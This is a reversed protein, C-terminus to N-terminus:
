EDSEDLNAQTSARLNHLKKFRSVKSMPALLYLYNLNTKPHKFRRDKEKIEDMLVNIDYVSSRMFMVQNQYEFYFWNGDELEMYLYMRNGRRRKRIEIKGKVIKNHTVKSISGLELDGSSYYAKNKKNWILKVQNFFLTQQLTDPLFEYASKEKIETMIKTAEDKPLLLPFTKLFHENNLNSPNQVSKAFHKNMMKLLDKSFYFDFGLCTNLTLRDKESDFNITGAASTRIHGMQVGLNILGEGNLNCNNMNYSILNGAKEPRKLKLSDGIQYLNKNHNYTLFGKIKLLPNDTYFKRTSLFAPYIHISDNTLYFSNFIKVNEKDRGITDIPIMINKPNIPANFTLWRNEINNCENHIQTEGDFRLHKDRATLHTQGRFDFDPSLTFAMADPLAGTAITQGTTDVSIEKFYIEQEEDLDDKYTYFGSGSYEKRGKVEVLADSIEHFHYLTDAIIKCNSLPALYGDKQITLDGNLPFIDADAVKLKEIFKAAINYGSTDYIAYPTIFSLSDQDFHTSIFTNYSKKPLTNIKGTEWLTNLHSLEETGFEIQDNTMNWKFSNLQCIYNNSPFSSYNDEITSKFDTRQNLLDITADCRDAKFTYGTTNKSLLKFQSNDAVIQNESYHFKSSTFSGNAYHMKGSGAMQDNTINIIGALTAHGEYMNFPSHSGRSQIRFKDKNSDWQVWINKGSIDPHAYPTEQAMLTYSEANGRARNPLLTFHNSVIKTNKETFTGKSWLGSNDLFLSDTLLAKDYVTTGDKEIAHAFGISKDKNIILTERFDPIIGGSKFEGEFQIDQDSLKNINEIKFPDVKIYFESKKYVGNQIFPKEYYVYSSDYSNFKPYQELYENGSKNSPHDIQLNASTNKVINELFNTNRKAFEGKDDNPIFSKLSDIIGMNVEFKDYSFNHNKGYLNLPGAKILGSFQFDRNQKVLLKGGQPVFTVNQSNSVSVQGVGNIQLNFNKLNLTADDDSKQTNSTFRIVDYDQKGMAAAIYNNSREEITVEDNSANYNVFGQFSLRIIQQRIQSIPKKIYSSYEEITFTNSYIYKAFKNLLVLPHINDMGQLKQYHNKTFYNSSEFKALRHAAGKMKRFHILSDGMKWHLIGFDMQMNHYNNFYPSRSMGAGDRTLILEKKKTLIKLHLNPHYIKFTDLYLTVETDKGIIKDNSFSFHESTAEIFLSDDKILEIKAPHEANGKGIFKIGKIAVGGKYRINKYLSDIVIDQNFSTFRPYTASKIKKVSNVKEILSGPIFDNFLKTNIYQVTDIEIKPKTIDLTYNEFEAYEESSLRGTRTWAIKGKEGHWKKQFPYYVGSTNYIVCSDRQSHCILETNKIEIKLTDQFIYHLDFLKTKWNLSFSKYLFQGQLLNNTQKIFQNINKLKIKPKRLENLLGKQWTLYNTDSLGKEDFLILSTFYDHFDPIIRARKARFKLCISLISDRKSTSLQVKNWFLDFKQQFEKKKKKSLSPHNMLADIESITSISDQNFTNAKTYSNSLIFSVFILSFLHKLM